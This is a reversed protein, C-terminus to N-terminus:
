TTEFMWGRKLRSRKRSRTLLNVAETRQSRLTSCKARLAKIQDRLLLEQDSLSHEVIKLEQLRKKTNKIMSEQSPKKRKQEMRRIKELTNHVKAYYKFESESVAERRLCYGAIANQIVRASQEMINMKQLHRFAKSHHTIKRKVHHLHWARHITHSARLRCKQLLKRYWRQVLQASHLALVKRRDLRKRYAVQLIRICRERRLSKIWVRWWRQLKSVAETRVVHRRKMRMCLAAVIICGARVLMDRKERNAVLLRWMRQISRAAFHERERNKRLAEREERIAIKLLKQEYIIQKKRYRQCQRLKNDIVRLKERKTREIMREHKGLSNDSYFRNSIKTSFTSSRTFAHSSEVQRQLIALAIAGEKM